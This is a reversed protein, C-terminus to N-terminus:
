GIINYMEGYLVYLGKKLFIFFLCVTFLAISGEREVTM